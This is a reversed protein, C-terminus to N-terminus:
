QLFIYYSYNSLVFACERILLFLQRRKKRFLDTGNQVNVKLIFSRWIHWIYPICIRNQM